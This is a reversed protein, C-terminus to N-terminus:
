LITKAIAEKLQQIQCPLQYQLKNSLQHIIPMKITGCYDQMFFTMGAENRRLILTGSDDCDYWIGLIELVGKKSRTKSPDIQTSAVELKSQKRRNKEDIYKFGLLNGICYYTSQGNVEVAFETAKSSKVLIWEGIQIDEAKTDVFNNPKFKKKKSDSSGGSCEQVRRLRDSSLKNSSESLMWIITSVRVNKINDEDDVVEIFGKSEGTRANPAQNQRSEAFQLENEISQEFMEEFCDETFDELEFTANCEIVDSANLCIGFEAADALAHKMAKELECVIEQDTPLNIPINVGADPNSQIRPFSIGNKALNESSAITTMLEVRAILHLLENSTFNIKTYNCTGMSRMKRFLYECPQSAFYKPIFSIRYDM